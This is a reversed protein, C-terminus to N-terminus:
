KKTTTETYELMTGCYGLNYTRLRPSYYADQSSLKSRLLAKAFNLLLTIVKSCTDKQRPKMTYWCQAM